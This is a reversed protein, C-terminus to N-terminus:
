KGEATVDAEGAGSDGQGETRGSPTDLPAKGLGPGDVVVPPM